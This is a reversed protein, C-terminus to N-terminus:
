FTKLFQQEQVVVVKLIKEGIDPMDVHALYIGSAVPIGATNQLDWDIYQDFQVEAGDLTRVLTGALNFIRITSNAPLHNFRVFRQSASSELRNVGLYPNPFVGVQDLADQKALQQSQTPQISSTSFTFTDNTANPKTSLIRVITGPIPPTGNGDFDAVLLRGIVENTTWDASLAGDDDLDARYSAADGKYWYIRDFCPFGFAGDPGHDPSYVGSPGGGEFMVPIMEHDDSPDDYTGIGIDWIQFPVKGVNGDTFAWWGWNGDELSTFRLEFDFPVLETFTTRLGSIGSTTTSLFYTDASNGLGGSSLSHWTQNGGFPAGNSDFFDETLPGNETAVEIFAPGGSPDRAYDPPAGFVQVLLGDATLFDADAADTTQKKQNDLVVEGTTVDVLDWVVTTVTTTDGDEIVTEELEEFRVEYDDGTVAAPDVVTVAVSGDSGGTTHEVEVDSSTAAPIRAGPDPKQPYVTLVIPSSELARSTQNLDSTANYATVAFYYAQDNALPRDRFADKTVTFYRQIGSNSGVQVPREIVVGSNTDFVESLVTTIENIKDFTALKIANASSIDPQPTRLQYVNYGEFQYGAVDQSETSQVRTADFGWDLVVEGNLGTTRVNPIAPAPVVQFLNDYISQATKDYFKVVSVSSLRDSGLGAILSIVVEQTDGVAMSFPGTVILMRRDGPPLVNGDLDGTGAVPDGSLPFSTPQGTINDTYPEPDNPDSQPLFGQLLNWWEITGEYSGLPGPDSFNAGAAFYGFSSAPLNRFGPREQLNFIGVDGPDGPVLVGQFFDYGAAPPPFGFGNYTNDVSSSNYVFMLSQERDVGVFDDSYDGLDPDSWQCFYMPDITADGPTTATGKYLLKVQKFIMNGLADTRNYGWATLQMEFGIPPSGYLGNTAGVSLDNAVTWVVMDAGAIGPFEGDLVNNGNADEGPDLIGNSNADEGRDLVGNGAGMVTTGDAGLYGGDLQNDIGTWPAGKEWPWEAWDKAYQARLAEESIGLEDSDLGLDATAYGKRIRYIRVDDANPNEAQGNPLIRGEVTGINYTQGGVRLAPTQGDDVMGGWIMGDQFIVALSASIGRPFFVGSNNTRPDRSSWGDARLWAAMNNINLLTSRPSGTLAPMDTKNNPRDAEERAFLMSTIFAFALMMVFSILFSKKSM